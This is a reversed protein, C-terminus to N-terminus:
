PEIPEEIMITSFRDYVDIEIENIDFILGWPNDSNGVNGSVVSAITYDNSGFYILPDICFSKNYERNNSIEITTMSPVKVTEFHLHVEKSDGTNGMYGIVEGKIVNDGIEVNPTRVMHAYKTQIYPSLSPKPNIHNIYVGHGYTSKGEVTIWSVYGDVFCYIEDGAVHRTIAGVDIGYHLKKDADNTPPINNFEQTVRTSETPWVYSTTPEDVGNYYYGEYISPHYESGDVAYVVVHLREEPLSSWDITKTFGHAGNGYGASALDSRSQNAVTTYTTALDGNTKYIYIHVDIASNPADPKWAWGSIGDEDINEVEGTANRVTFTKPSNSLQPNTSNVGIAYARVTYTGPKYTKWNINYNYAHYGNGYGASELDSRYINATVPIVQEEGTSNNIIYIHVDIATNPINSQYAWGGIQTTSVVDLYGIPTANPNELLEFQWQQNTSGTYTSIFINGASTATTGSASGNSTGYSTIALNQNARMVLKYKNSGLSVIKIEQSTPDTPNYLKINQGSTLPASGRTVDVVRNTGNSSCMAYFMYSDTSSSYVVKFKQETSGDGTWQYINTGNADIGYDVNMYKGSAVNKIRYVGGNIIGTTQALPMVNSDGQNETEIIESGNEEVIPITQTDNAFVNVSLTFILAVCLM